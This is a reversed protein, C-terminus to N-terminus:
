ALHRKRAKKTKKLTGSASIFGALGMDTLKEACDACYLNGDHVPHDAGCNPCRGMIVDDNNVINAPCTANECKEPDRNSCPNKHTCGM